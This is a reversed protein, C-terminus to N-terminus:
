KYRGIDRNEPSRGLDIGRASEPVELDKGQYLSTCDSRCAGEHSQSYAIGKKAAFQCERSIEDATVEIREQFFVWLARPLGYLAAYSCTHRIRRLPVVLPCPSRTHILRDSLLNCERGLVRFIESEKDALPIPLVNPQEFGLDPEDPLSVNTNKLERSQVRMRTGQDKFVLLAPGPRGNVDFDQSTEEADRAVNRSIEDVAGPHDDNWRLLNVVVVIRHEHGKGGSLRTPVVERERILLVQGLIHLILSAVDSGKRTEAIPDTSLRDLPWSEPLACPPSVATVVAIRVRPGRASCEPEDPVPEGPRVSGQDSSAASLKVGYIERIKLGRTIVGGVGAIRAECTCNVRNRVNLM